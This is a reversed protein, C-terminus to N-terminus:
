HYLLRNTVPVQHLAALRFRVIGLRILLILLREKQVPKATKAATQTQQHIKSSHWRRTNGHRGTRDDLRELYTPIGSSSLLTERFSTTEKLAAV